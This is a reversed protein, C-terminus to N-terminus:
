LEEYEDRTKLIGNFNIIHSDKKIFVKTFVGQGLHLSCINNDPHAAYLLSDKVILNNAISDATVTTNVNISENNEATDLLTNNENSINEIPIDDITLDIIKRFSNIKNGEYEKEPIRKLITKANRLANNTLDFATRVVELFKEQLHVLIFYVSLVIPTKTGMNKVIVWEHEPTIWIKNNNGIFELAFKVGKNAEAKDGNVFELSSPKSYVANEKTFFTNFKNSTVLEESM